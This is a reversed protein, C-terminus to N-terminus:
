ENYWIKSAIEFFGSTKAFFGGNSENGVIQGPLDAFILRLSEVAEPNGVWPKGCAPLLQKCFIPMWQHPKAMSIYEEDVWMFRM